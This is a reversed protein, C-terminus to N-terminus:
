SEINPNEVVISQVIPETIVSKPQIPDRCSGLLLLLISSCFILKKM